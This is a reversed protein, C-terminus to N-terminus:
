CFLYGLKQIRLIDVSFLDVNEVIGAALGTSVFVYIALVLNVDKM